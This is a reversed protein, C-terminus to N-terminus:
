LESNTEPFDPINTRVESAVAQTVHLIHLEVTQELIDIRGKKSKQDSTDGMIIVLVEAPIEKLKAQLKNFKPKLTFLIIM